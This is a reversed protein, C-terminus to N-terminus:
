HLPLKRSVSIGVDTMPVSISHGIELSDEEFRVEPFLLTGYLTLAEFLEANFDEKHFVTDLITTSGKTLKIHTYKDYTLLSDLGWAEVYKKPIVLKRSSDFDNVIRLRFTNLNREFNTDIVVKEKYGDVRMEAFEVSDIVAGNGAKSNSDTTQNQHINQPADNNCAIFFLVLLLLISVKM